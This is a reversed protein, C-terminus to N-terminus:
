EELKKLSYGAYATGYRVSLERRQTMGYLRQLLVTKLVTGRRAVGFNMNMMLRAWEGPPLQEAGMILQTLYMGQGVSLHGDERALYNSELPSSPPEQTASMQTQRPTDEPTAESSM